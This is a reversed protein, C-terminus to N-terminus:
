RKQLFLYQHETTGGKDKIGHREVNQVNESGRYIEYFYRQARDSLESAMDCKKSKGLHLVMRGNPKLVHYCMEFFLIYVDMNKKQRGELFSLEANIYDQPEWGVFWLRMWNNIYFRLSDVFPPSCIIVDAGEIKSPIDYFDGLLAKGPTYDKWIAKKYSLDIKDKVHKVLEKYEFEGTPAYPTLPHSKRSLAYPRNGHLVHLLCAMIMAEASSIEEGKSIFYNRATIIERYTERHFYDPLKGNFGFDSYPLTCEFANAKNAKIYQDLRDLAAYAENQSVKETKAKTVVYAMKSLDNGVGIRGQLCAEFPITGVGCLPDLVVEGPLSFNKVLFHAIAPKLKGHYSCLSHWAHGWNRSKYPEEKYPLNEIFNKADEYFSM